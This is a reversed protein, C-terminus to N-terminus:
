SVPEYLRSAEDILDLAEERTFGLAMALAIYLEGAHEREPSDDAALVAAGGALALRRLEPTPLGQLLALVRADYGEVALAWDSKELLEAVESPQATGECFSVLLEVLARTDDPGLDVSSTATLFAVEVLGALSRGHFDAQSPRGKNNKRQVRLMPSGSGLM